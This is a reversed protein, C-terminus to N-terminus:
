EYRLATMPDIKTARIAPILSAATAVTLILVIAAIYATLDTTTVGYLMSKLFSTAWTAGLLGAATGIVAITLSERLILWLVGFPTAGLAMRIGIEQRRQEVSYALVSYLGVAALLIALGSFITLLGLLFRRAALTQGLYDGLPKVDRLPINPDLSHVVRRLEEIAASQGRINRIVVGSFDDGIQRYDYYIAPQPKEELSSVKMNGVVGIITTWGTLFGGKFRKGVSSENPFATDAFAKNVVAVHPSKGDMQEHFTQGEVIPVHLVTFVNRSIVNENTFTRERNITHGEAEVYDSSDPGTIPLTGILGALQTDPRSNLKAIVNNWFAIRAPVSYHVDPLSLRATAVNETDFGPDVNLLKTFSHILLSAGILLMISVAIEGGVLFSRLRRTGGSMSGKSGEKLGATVDARSARYAPLLGSILSSALTIAFCFALVPINLSPALAAPLSFPSYHSILLLSIEAVVLGAIGGLFALLLSEALLFRVIESRTAGLAGRIALERTRGTARALLLGALNACSILLLLVVAALLVLLAPRINQVLTDKLRSVVAVHERQDPHQRGIGAAITKLEARAQSETVDPKLRAIADLFHSNYQQEVNTLLGESFEPVRGRAAIWIQNDIPYAEKPMLVGVIRYIHDSITIDRGIVNTDADFLTHWAADSIIAVRPAGPKDINPSFLRGLEAHAGLVDFFNNTVSNGKLKRPEGIGTLTLQPFTWAAVGSLTKTQQQYDLFEGPSFPVTIGNPQRDGMHMLRRSDPYPLGRLLSSEVVSFIATNAGIGLALSLVAVITFLPKARLTRWAFNLDKRM